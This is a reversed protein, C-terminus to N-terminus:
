TIKTWTGCRTSEFGTDTPAITVVTPNDTNDNALIDSTDGSFGNLRAYYCGRSGKRTRYTGPQIDKGVQWTGDGFHPYSDATQNKQSQTTPQRSPTTNSAERQQKLSVDNESQNKSPPTAKRSTVNSRTTKPATSQAVTTQPTSPLTSAQQQQSTFSGYLANAVGGLIVSLILAALTAIGWQKVPRRRLAQVVIAVIGVLFVVGAMAALPTSALVVVVTAVIILLVKLGNSLSSGVSLERFLKWFEVARDWLFLKSYSYGPEAPALM